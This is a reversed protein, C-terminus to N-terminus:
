PIVEYDGEEAEVEYTPADIQSAQNVTLNVQIVTAKQEGDQKRPAVRDIYPAVLPPVARADVPIRRGHADKADLMEDIARKSLELAKPMTEAMISLAENKKETLDARLRSYHNRWARKDRLAKVEAVTVERGALGSCALAQKTYPVSQENRAM